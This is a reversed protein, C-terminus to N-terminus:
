LVEIYEVQKLIKKVEAEKDVPVRIRILASSKPKDFRKQSVSKHIFKNIAPAHYEPISQCFKKAGEKTIKGYSSTIQLLYKKAEDESVADIFLVPFQQTAIDIDDASLNILASLRGHGDLLSYSGSVDDRWVAFPMLMGEDVLSKALADIDKDTRKKLDGQFSVLKGLTITHETGSCKVQIM